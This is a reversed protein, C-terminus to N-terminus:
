WRPQHHVQRSDWTQIYDTKKMKKTQKLKLYSETWVNVISWKTLYSRSANNTTVWAGCWDAKLMTSRRMAGNDCSRAPNIKGCWCKPDWRFLENFHMSASNSFFFKELAPDTSASTHDFVTISPSGTIAWYTWGDVCRGIGISWFSSHRECCTRVDWYKSWTTLHLFSDQQLGNLLVKSWTKFPRKKGGGTLYVFRCSPTTAHSGVSMLAPWKPDSWVRTRREEIKGWCLNLNRGKSRYQGDSRDDIEDRMQEVQPM